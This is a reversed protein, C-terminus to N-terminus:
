QKIIKQTAINGNSDTVSIFYVGASWDKMDITGQMHMGSANVQKGTIDTIILTANSYGSIKVALDERVPNPYVLVAPKEEKDAISIGTSTSTGVRWLEMGSILDNYSYIMVNGFQYFIAPANYPEEGAAIHYDTVTNNNLPDMMRLEFGNTSDDCIYYIKNSIIGSNNIQSYGSKAKYSTIKQTNAATGDTEWIQGGTADNATFYLKNNVTGIFFPSSGYFGMNLYIDKVLVPTSSMNLATDIKYLEAGLPDAPGNGVPIGGFYYNGNYYSFGSLKYASFSPSMTATPSVVRYVHKLDSGPTTFDSAVIHLFGNIFQYPFYYTYASVYINSPHPLTGTATGNTVFLQTKPTPSGIQTTAIFFLSGYAKIFGTPMSSGSGFNVDSLMKTGATTGDSEWLEQGKGTIIHSDEYSLASFVLKGNYEVVPYMNASSNSYLNGIRKFTKVFVPTNSTTNYYWLQTTDYNVDVAYFLKESVKCFAYPTTFSQMKSPEYTFIKQTGGTSGNTLWVSSDDKNVLYAYTDYIYVSENGFFTGTPGPTFDKLLSPQAHTWGAMFLLIFVTYIKKM